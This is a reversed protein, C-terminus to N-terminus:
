AASGMGAVEHTSWMSAAALVNRSEVLGVRASDLAGNRRFPRLPSIAHGRVNMIASSTSFPVRRAM